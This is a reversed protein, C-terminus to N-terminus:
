QGSFAKLRDMFKTRQDVSMEDEAFQSLFGVLRGFDKLNSAREKASLIKELLSVAVRFYSAMESADGEKVKNRFEELEYFLKEAESELDEATYGHRTENLFGEVAEVTLSAGGSATSGGLLAELYGRLEGSYPCDKSQLYKPDEMLHLRVTELRTNLGEDLPPYYTDSM